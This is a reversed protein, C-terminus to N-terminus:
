IIVYKKILAPVHILYQELKKGDRFPRALIIDSAISKSIGPICSLASSSINNINIPVPLGLLSRERHGVIIVNVFSKKKFIHPIKVTISYSAIEKGLSYHYMQELIYVKELITGLPYLKILIPHDIEQRIKERFYEFRNTLQHAIKQNKEDALPTGPFSIAKRINIRKILFKMEKLKELVEFNKKFTSQTEGTLGHILNIGPLLKYVGKEMVGGIENILAIVKLAEDSTIKLNNKEIVNEDFSEFGLALTDGPTIADVIVTLIKKSEEPFYYITGPNANDINLVELKGKEKREKLANFLKCVAEVNPKPFGKKFTNVLSGYQLIDAQRGLRIRSVGNEILCDIESLIDSVERSDFSEYLGEYCFTCHNLRPCGRSTEVECIINPFEPHEKVIESGLVAWERIHSMNRFSDELSKFLFFNSETTSRKLLMRASQCAYYEIDGRLLLVNEYTEDLVMRIAGGIVFFHDMNKEIIKRIETITGIKFGLYKGPVVAGGILFVQNYKKEIIFNNSRLNDITKYTISESPIGVSRLAGYVYRPYPSFFPPVGFCAPEDVYCDLILFSPKM